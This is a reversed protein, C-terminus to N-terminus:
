YKFISVRFRYKGVPPRAYPIGEFAAFRKGNAALDYYGRVTGSPITVQPAIANIQEAFFVM